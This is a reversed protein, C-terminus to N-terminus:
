VQASFIEWYELYKMGSEGLNHLSRGLLISSATFNYFSLRPALVNESPTTPGDVATTRLSPIIVEMHTILGNRSTVLCM